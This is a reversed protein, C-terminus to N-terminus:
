NRSTHKRFPRSSWVPLSLSPSLSPSLFCSSARQGGRLTLCFLQTLKPTVRLHFSPADVGVSPLRLQPAPPLHRPAAATGRRPEGSFDGFTGSLARRRRHNPQTKTEQERGGRLGPQVGGGVLEERQTRVVHLRKQDVGRGGHQHFKVSRPASVADGKRWNVFTQRSVNFTPSM